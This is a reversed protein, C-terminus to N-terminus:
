LKPWFNSHWRFGKVKGDPMVEFTIEEGLTEDKRIRRFTHPRVQRFKVLRKIPDMSPLELLALGDEWPLILTEGHWPQLNYSGAYQRIEPTHSKKKGPEKVADRIAPAVVDYMRQAWLDADVGNANSLFVVGIREEPM